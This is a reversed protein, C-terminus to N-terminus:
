RRPEIKDEIWGRITTDQIHLFEIGVTRCYTEELASRLERLTAQGMGRFVSCDFTRDLDSESLSFESLALMPHPPPKDCLPDLHAQLHGAHRYVYGMRVVGTQATDCPVPTQGALEFGEFFAQWREDVSKPDARWRAYFDEILDLNSRTAFTPPM